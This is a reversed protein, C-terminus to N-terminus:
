MDFGKPVTTTVELEGGVNNSELDSPLQAAIDDLSPPEPEAQIDVGFDTALGAVQDKALNALANIDQDVIQDDWPGGFAIERPGAREYFAAEREAGTEVSYDELSDAFQQGAQVIEEKLAQQLAPDDTESLKQQLDHMREMFERAANRAPNDLGQGETVEMVETAIESLAQLPDLGEIDLVPEQADVAPEDILASLASVDINDFYGSDTPTLVKPALDDITFDAPLENPLGPVNVGDYYQGSLPLENVGYKAKVDDPVPSGIDSPDRSALFNLYAQMNVDINDKDNKM